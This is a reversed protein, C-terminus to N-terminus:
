ANDGGLIQALWPITDVAARACKVCLFGTRDGDINDFFMGYGGSFIVELAGRYQRRSPNNFVDRLEAGCNACQDNVVPPKDQGCEGCVEAM